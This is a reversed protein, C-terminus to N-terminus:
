WRGDDFDSPKSNFRCKAVMRLVEVFRKLNVKLELKDKSQGGIRVGASLVLAQMVVDFSAGSEVIARDINDAVTEVPDKAAKQPDM